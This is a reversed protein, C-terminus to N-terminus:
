IIKREYCILKIKELLFLTIYVISTIILGIYFLKQPYFDIKIIMHGTKEIKWVNAYKFGIFHNEQPLETGNISIKWNENYLQNLVLFFPLSSNVDLIYSTPNVRIYKFKILSEVANDLTYSHKVLTLEILDAKIPKEVLTINKPIQHESIALIAKQHPPIIIPFSPKVEISGMLGMFGSEWWGILNYNWHEFDFHIILPEGDLYIQDIYLPYPNNNILYILTSNYVRWVGEPIKYPASNPYFNITDNEQNGDARVVTKWQYGQGYFSRAECCDSMTSWNIPYKWGDIVILSKKPYNFALTHFGKELKIKNITIFTDSINVTINDYKSLTKGDISIIKLLDEPTTNYRILGYITLNYEGEKLIYFNFSTSDNKNFIYVPLDTYVMIESPKWLKNRYFYLEGFRKELEIYPLSNLVPQLSFPDSPINYMKALFPNIDNHYLIYKVNMLALIKAVYPSKNLILQVVYKTMGNADVETFLLPKKFINLAPEAGFYGQSGNAFLYSSLAGAKVLPLSLINFDENFSNLWDAAEFYYYPVQIRASPLVKGGGYIVDGTWYPWAYVITLLLIIFACILLLTIRKFFRITTKNTLNLIKNIGSSLTIGVLVSYSLALYLGFKHFPDRFLPLLLFNELLKTLISGFPPNSGTLMLISISAICSFLLILKNKPKLLLSSFAILPLLFSIFIFIPSSYSSAWPIIPDDYVKDRLTWYGNPGSIRFADLIPISHSKFADLDPSYLRYPSMYFERSLLFLPLLWYANALLLCSIFINFKIVLLSRNKSIFLFYIFILFLVFLQILFVPPIIYSPSMLLTTLMPPFLKIKNETLTKIFFAILLPTFSYAFNYYFTFTYPITWLSILAWLNTIYFIASLISALLNRNSLLYTLYFMSFGACFNIFFFFFSQITIFSVGIKSLIFIVIELFILSNAKPLGGLGHQTWTYLARELSIEPNIEPFYDGGGILYGRFWSLPVLSIFFIIILGKKLLWEQLLYVLKNALNFRQSNYRRYM